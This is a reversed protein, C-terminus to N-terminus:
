NDKRPCMVARTVEGPSRMASAAAVAREGRRVGPLQLRAEAFGSKWLSLFFNDCVRYAEDM